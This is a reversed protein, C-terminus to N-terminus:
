ELDGKVHEIIEETKHLFDSEEFCSALNLFRAEDYPICIQPEINKDLEKIELHTINDKLLHFEDNWDVYLIAILFISKPM